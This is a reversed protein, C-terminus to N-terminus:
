SCTRGVAFADGCDECFHPIDDGCDDYAEGFGPLGHRPLENDRVSWYTKEDFFAAQDSRAEDESLQPPDQIAGIIKRATRRDDESLAVDP